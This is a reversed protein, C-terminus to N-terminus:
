IREAVLIMRNSVGCATRWRATRQLDTTAPEPIPRDVIRLVERAPGRHEYIAARM